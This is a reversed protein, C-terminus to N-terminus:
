AAAETRVRMSKDEVHALVGIRVATGPQTGYVKRAHIECVCADDRWFRGSRNLADLVLKALNDVDPKKEPWVHGNRMAEARWKPMSSPEPLTFTLTVSLPADLPEPPAHENAFSVFEREAQVTKAPTYVAAFKGRVAVKARGKAVPILPVVFHIM